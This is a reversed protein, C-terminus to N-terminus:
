FDEQICFLQKLNYPNLARQVVNAPVEVRTETLGRAWSIVAEIDGFDVILYKNLKAFRFTVPARPLDITSIMKLGSSSYLALQHVLKDARINTQLM